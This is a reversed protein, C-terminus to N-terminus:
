KKKIKEKEERLINSFYNNYFLEPDNLKQNTRQINYDILSLLDDEKKRKGKYIHSAILVSNRRKMRIKRPLDKTTEYNSVGGPIHTDLTNFSKNRSINFIKLNKSSNIFPQLVKKREFKHNFKFINRDSNGNIETETKRKDFQKQTMKKKLCNSSTNDLESYFALSKNKNLFSACTRIDNKSKKKLVSVNNIYNINTTNYVISSPIRKKQTLDQLITKEKDEILSNNKKIDNNNIDLTIEIKNNINNNNYKNIFENIPYKLYTGKNYKFHNSGEKHIGIIKNNLLNIIPSGSSGSETCCYHNINYGDIKNIIGYSVVVKDGNLYQPIYISHNNNYLIESKENFIKEDLEM